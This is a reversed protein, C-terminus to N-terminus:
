IFFAFALCSFFPIRVVSFLMVNFFESFITPNMFSESIVTTQKRM